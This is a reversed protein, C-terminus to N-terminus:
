HTCRWVWKEMDLVYVDNLVSTGTYGGFVVARHHDIKTFTYAGRPSPKDGTTTQVSWLGLSCHGFCLSITSLTTTCNMKLMCVESAVAPFYNVGFLM